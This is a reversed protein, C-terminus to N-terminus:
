NYGGKRIEAMEESYIREVLDNIQDDSLLEDAKKPIGYQKCYKGCAPKVINGIMKKSPCNKGSKHADHIKMIVPYYMKRYFDKDNKMFVHIDDVVDFPLEQALKNDVEFIKM